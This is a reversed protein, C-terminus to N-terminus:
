VALENYNEEKTEVSYTEKEAKYRKKKYEKLDIVNTIKKSKVVTEEWIASLAFPFKDLIRLLNDMAKSQTIQGSEYRAAGKLGGGLIKSWKEQTFGFSKRIRKIEEVPLLGDVERKFKKLLKGSSKLSSDDVITEECVNCSYTVYNPIPVKRGKYEFQETTVHKKLEGTGCIPCTKEM